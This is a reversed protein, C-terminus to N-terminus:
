RAPKQMGAIAFAVASIALAEFVATWENRRSATEAAALARPLHLTFVWLFIMLGSLASAVRATLPVIMGLGGLVLAAGAFYTWFVSGPIWTPVLKAVFQPYIFHEVGGLILFAGVCIRGVWCFLDARSDLLHVHFRDRDSAGAVRNLSLSGAIAL